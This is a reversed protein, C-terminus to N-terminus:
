VALFSSISRSIAPGLRVILTLGRCDAACDLLHQDIEVEGAALRVASEAWLRQYVAEAKDTHM